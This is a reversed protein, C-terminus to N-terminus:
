FWKFITKALFTAGVMYVVLILTEPLLTMSFLSQDELAIKRLGDVLATLPLYDVFARMADPFNTKSFFVGSLLMMPISVLNLLGAIFPMSRTRSACLLTIATFSAAGLVSFLVFDIFSGHVKFDFIFGSYVVITLFEFFLVMFRGFIHSVIYTSPNMPTALYRKLLNERRNSVITMGVGFLSSTMISLALIGPILFDVYRGGLVERQARITPVVDKRGASVQIVRDVYDKARMSEPNASDLTYEIENAPTRSIELVIEGRRFLTEIEKEDLFYPKINPDKQLVQMASDQKMEPLMGVGYREPRPNSFAFGLVTIWLLPMTVVWFMASPERKFERWRSKTQQWLANNRM